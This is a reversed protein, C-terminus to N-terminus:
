IWTSKQIWLHHHATCTVQQFLPVDPLLLKPKVKMNGYEPFALLFFFFPSVTFRFAKQKWCAGTIKSGYKKLFPLSKERPCNSWVWRVGYTSCSPGLWDNLSTRLHKSIHNQTSNQTVKQTVKRSIKDSFKELNQCSALLVDLTTHLLTPNEPLFLKAVLIPFISCFHALVPAKKFKNFCQDYIKISNTRYHFDINSHEEVFGRNQFNNKWSIHALNNEALWIAPCKLWGYGWLLDITQKKANQCLNVYILIQDIIKPHIHDFIPM